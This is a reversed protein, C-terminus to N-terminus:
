AVEIFPSEPLIQGGDVVITEGTIYKAENSALFLAAYAVDEATGLEGMPIAQKLAQVIEKPREDLGETIINGPEIGNVTIGKRAFELAATKIFGNVGGKSAAYHAFGPQSVKPGTISSIIVIRGYAQREMFPLCAKVALFTGKLNTDCVDDWEIETMDRLLTMPYIGANQCLIDIRGFKEIATEAMRQMDTAIKMNAVLPIIEGGIEHAVKDLDNANRGTIILKAGQSAFLKAIEKGIGKNAGTIIAVKNELRKTM